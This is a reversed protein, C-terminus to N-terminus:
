PLSVGALKMEVGMFCPTIQDVRLEHKVYDFWREATQLTDDKGDTVSAWAMSLTAHIYCSIAYRGFGNSELLDIVQSTAGEGFYSPEKYTNDCVFGLCRIRMLAYRNEGAKEGTLLTREVLDIYRAALEPNDIFAYLASASFNSM